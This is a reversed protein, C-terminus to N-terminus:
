IESPTEPRWSVDGAGKTSQDLDESGGMDPRNDAEEGEGGAELLDAEEEVMEGVRDKLLVGGEDIEEEDGDGGKYEEM